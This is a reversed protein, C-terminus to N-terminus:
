GPWYLLRRCYCRSVQFIVFSLCKQVCIAESFRTRNNGWGQLLADGTVSDLAVLEVAGTV